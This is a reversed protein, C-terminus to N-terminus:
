SRRNYLRKLKRKVAGGAIRLRQFALRTHQFIRSRRQWELLILRTLLPLSAFGFQGFTRELLSPKVPLQLAQTVDLLWPGHTRLIERRVKNWQSTETFHPYLNSVNVWLEHPNWSYSRPLREFVPTPHFAMQAKDVCLPNLLAAIIATHPILSSAAQYAVPLQRRAEAVNYIVSNINTLSGFELEKLAEAFDDYITEETPWSGIKVDNVPFIHLAARPARQLIEEVIPLAHPLFRDGCGVIWLYRSQALEFARLINGLAGLNCGHKVLVLREGFLARRSEVVEEVNAWQSNDGVIIQAQTSEFPLLSDLLRALNEPAEYSLVYITLLRAREAEDHEDHM